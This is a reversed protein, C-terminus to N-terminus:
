APEMTPCPGLRIDDLLVRIREKEAECPQRAACSEDAGKKLEVRSGGLGKRSRGQCSRIIRGM